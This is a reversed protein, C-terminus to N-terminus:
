GSPKELHFWSPAVFTSSLLGLRGHVRWVGEIAASIAAGQELWRLSASPGDDGDTSSSAAGTPPPPELYSCEWGGLNCLLTVCVLLATM